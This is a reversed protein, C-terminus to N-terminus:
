VNFKKCGDAEIGGGLQVYNGAQAQFMKRYLGNEIKMLEDHSGSEFIRGENLVIIKDCFRCSALRHSVFLITKEKMIRQIDQYLSDEAVPDLAATPEDLILMNSNRYLARVLALKQSEGGSPEYGQEDFEKYLNTDIGKSLSQVKDYMNFQKLLVNVREGDQQETFVINDSLPRAFMVFDQFVVSVFKCFDERDYQLIDKGDLLISGSSVPYLGCLLKVLTTKGEGNLGVLSIKDKSQIEFSVDKLVYQESGPYKFSVNQFKIVHNGNKMDIPENGYCIEEDKKSIFTSYWSFYESGLIMNQYEEFMKEMSAAMVATSGILMTFSAVGLNNLITFFGVYLYQLATVIEELLSSKSRLKAVTHAAIKMKEANEQNVMEARNLLLDKARYLRIDKGYKYNSIEYFYYDMRRNLGSLQSYYHEMENLENEEIRAKVLVLITVMVVLLPAEEFVIAFVSVISIVAAVVEKLSDIICAVNGSWDLGDKANKIEDLKEKTETYQYPVEMCRRSYEESFYCDFWEETVQAKYDLYGLITNCILEGLLFIGAVLLASQYNKGTLAEVIRMPMWVRWVNLLVKFIVESLMVLIYGKKERCIIKTLYGITNLLNQREIVSKIKKFM